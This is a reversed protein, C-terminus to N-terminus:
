PTYRWLYNLCNYNETLDLGTGGFLWFSGNPDTWSVANKLAGPVNALDAVGMEGFAGPDGGASSGSVWTWNTGDFKWLDNLYYNGYPTSDYGYGGFLWLNGRADIWSVAGSRAGPVNSPDGVGKTGYVGAQGSASSGSVWTWNTGDFKWLDNLVNNGGFLWFNGHGDTWSVAGSRAGPVNSPDAVGKTGYVGAQGSASSGSVWTWNTGDFKWLDNFYGSFYGSANGGFGWVYGGFLWLNGQADTWSVAGSRAGPVNTPDAVGKTGYVGSQGSTSGGSMWIWNTGDFKWLDNLYTWYNNYGEGGFLWFNRHSDTWSVAGSRAGPVNSPDAVGKAGYVGSQNGATSGSVLTWRIGDFKWLDNFSPPLNVQTCGYGGFLWLNGQLDTWSVASARAGPGFSLWTWEPLTWTEGENVNVWYGEGPCLQALTGASSAAYYFQWGQSPYGWLVQLNGPVLASLATTCASCSTRNYGVLNWGSTLSISASPATGSVSLPKAPASTMKVWYGKGADMTALTSGAPDNPDYVEWKQTQYAWVVEYAGKIGSLVNAIGDDAPQMPLSVLNWGKVLPVTGTSQAIAISCSLLLLFPIIAATLFLNVLDKM